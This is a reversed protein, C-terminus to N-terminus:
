RDIKTKAINSKAQAASCGSPNGGIPEDLLTRKFLTFLLLM